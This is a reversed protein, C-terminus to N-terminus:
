ASDPADPRHPVVSLQARHQRDQIPQLVGQSGEPDLDGIPDTGLRGPLGIEGRRWADLGAEASTAARRRWGYRWSWMSGISSAQSGSANPGTAGACSADAPGGMSTGGSWTATIRTQLPGSA